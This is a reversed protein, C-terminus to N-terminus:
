GYKELLRRLWPDGPRVLRANEPSNRDSTDLAFANGVAREAAEVARLRGYTEQFTGTGLGSRFAARVGDYAAVAVKTRALNLKFM